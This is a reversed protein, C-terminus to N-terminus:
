ARAGGSVIRALRFAVLSVSVVGVGYAVMEVVLWDGSGGLITIALAAAFALEMVPLPALVRGWPTGRFGYAAILSLPLAAFMFGAQLYLLVDFVNV